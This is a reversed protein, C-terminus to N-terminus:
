NSTSIPLDAYENAKFETASWIKLNRLYSNYRLIKINKGNLAM